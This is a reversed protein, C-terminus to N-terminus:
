ESYIFLRIELAHVEHICGEHAIPSWTYWTGCNPWRTPIKGSFGITFVFLRATMFMRGPTVVMGYPVWSTKLAIGIRV